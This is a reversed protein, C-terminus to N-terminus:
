PCCLSVIVWHDDESKFAVTKGSDCLSDATWPSDECESKPRWAWGTFGVLDFPPSLDGIAVDAKEIDKDVPMAIVDADLKGDNKVSSVKFFICESGLPIAM